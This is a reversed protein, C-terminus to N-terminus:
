DAKKRYPYFPYLSCHPMKCDVKGDAYMGMCDYCRAYIAQKFTLKGGSLHKLLEKQGIAKKGYKRITLIRENMLDGWCKRSKQDQSEAKVIDIVKSNEIAEKIKWSFLKEKLERIENETEDILHRKFLIKGEIIDKENLRGNM